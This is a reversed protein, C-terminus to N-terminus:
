PRHLSIERIIVGPPRSPEADAIKLYCAGAAVIARSIGARVDDMNGFGELVDQAYKGRAVAVDHFAGPKGDVEGSLKVVYDGQVWVLAECGADKPTLPLRYIISGNGDVRRMGAETSSGSQTHIYGTEREGGDTPFDLPYRQRDSKVFDALKKRLRDARQQEVTNLAAVEVRSFVAGWGGEPYSSSIAVYVTRSPNGTLYPTLDIVQEQDNEANFCKRGLWSISNLAERFESPGGGEDRAVAIAFNNMIRIYFVAGVVDAPIAFRYVIRQDVEAVRGTEGGIDQQYTGEDSYIFPKEKQTSVAFSAIVRRATAAPVPSIPATTQEGVAYAPARTEFGDPIRVVELGTIFAEADEPNEIRLYVARSTDSLFPTLDFLYSNVNSADRVVRGAIATADAAVSYAGPKGGIEPALSARFANGLWVAAEARSVGAPVPLRYVVFGGPQLRRLYSGDYYKVDTNPSEALYQREKPSGDANLGFLRLAALDVPEGFSYIISAQQQAPVTTNWTFSGKEGMEPALSFEYSRETEEEAAVRWDFDRHEVVRIQIPEDRRSAVSLTVTRRTEWTKPDPARTEGRSVTLDRVSSVAVVATKGPETWSVFGSGVPTDGESVAVPGDPLALGAKNNFTYIAPAREVRKAEEEQRPRTDWRYSRAVQVDTSALHVQRTSGDPIDIGTLLTFEHLGGPKRVSSAGGLDQMLGAYWESGLTDEFPPPSGVSGSMLRLRAGTLDLATNTISAQMSLHSQEPKVALAVAPTWGLGATRFTVEVPVGPRLGSLFAQYHEIEQPRSEQRPGYLPRVTASLSAEGQMAQLSDTLLGKPLDFNASDGEFTLTAKVEAPAGVYLTAEQVKLQASWAASSLGVAALLLAVLTTFRTAM